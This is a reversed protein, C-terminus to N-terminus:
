LKSFKRDLALRAAQTSQAEVPPPAAPPGLVTLFAPEGAGPTGANDIIIHDTGTELRNARCRGISHPLAEKV